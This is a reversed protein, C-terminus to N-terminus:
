STRRGFWPASSRLFLMSSGLALLAATVVDLASALASLDWTARIHFPLVGVTFAAYAATLWRAWNQGRWVLFFLAAALAIVFLAVVALAWPEVDDYRAVGSRISPIFSIQQVVIALGLVLVAIAVGPPRPPRLEGLPPDAVHAAPTRYPDPM